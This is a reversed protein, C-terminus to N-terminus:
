SVEIAKTMQEQLGGVGWLFLFLFLYFFLFNNSLGVDCTM